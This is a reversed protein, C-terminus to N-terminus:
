YLLDQECTCLIGEQLQNLNYVISNNGETRFRLHHPLLTVFMKMEYTKICLSLIKSFFLLKLCFNLPITDSVM